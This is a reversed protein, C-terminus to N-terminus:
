EGKRLKISLYFYLYGLTISILVFIFSVASAKVPDFENNIIYYIYVPFYTPNSSLILPISVGVFAALFVVSSATILSKWTLPLYIKTIITWKGAGLSRAAEVIEPKIKSLDAYSIIFIMPLYLYLHALNIAIGKGIFNYNELGLANLISNLIVSIYGQPQLLDRWMFGIVIYPVFLPIRLLQIITNTYAKTMVLFLAISYGIVTALLTSIFATKFTFILSKLAYSGPKFLSLTNLLGFDSISVYFVNFMPYLLVVFFFILLPSLYLFSKLKDKM